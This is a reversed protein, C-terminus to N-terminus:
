GQAFDVTAGLLLITDRGWDFHKGRRYLLEFKKWFLGGRSYNMTEMMDTFDSLSKYWDLTVYNRKQVGGVKRKRQDM